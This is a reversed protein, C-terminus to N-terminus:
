RPRRTDFVHNMYDRLAVANNYEPERSAHLLCVKGHDLHALLAQVSEQNSDLEAFYRRRFEPWKAPDHGYWKRLDASPAVSKLWLDIRAEQKSLGRPWLRDVLIRFEDASDATDYVRRVNIEM